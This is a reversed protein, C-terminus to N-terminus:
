ISTWGRGPFARRMAERVRDLSANPTVVITGSGTITVTGSTGNSLAFTGSGSTPTLNTITLSNLAEADVNTKTYSYAPNAIGGIGLANDGGAADRHRTQGATGSGPQQLLLMFCGTTASADYVSPFLVGVFGPVSYEGVYISIKEPTGTPDPAPTPQPVATATPVPTPPASAYSYVLYSNIATTDATYTSGAVNGNTDLSTYTGPITEDAATCTTNGSLAYTAAPAPTATAIPSATATPM